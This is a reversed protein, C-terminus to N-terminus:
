SRTARMMRREGSLRPTDTRLSSWLLVALGAGFVVFHAVHGFEWQTRVATWGAPVVGTTWGAMKTNATQVVAAWEALGAALLGTGALTWRFAAPDHRLV